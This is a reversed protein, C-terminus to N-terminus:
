LLRAAPLSAMKRDLKLVEPDVCSHYSTDIGYRRIM